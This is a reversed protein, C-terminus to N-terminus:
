TSLNKLTGMISYADGDDKRSIDLESHDSSFSGVLASYSMAFKCFIGFFLDVEHPLGLNEFMKEQFNGNWKIKIWSNRSNETSNNAKRFNLLKRIKQFKEWSIETGNTGTEFIESNKTSRYAGTKGRPFKHTKVWSVHCARRWDSFTNSNPPVVISTSM